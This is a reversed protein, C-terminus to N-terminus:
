GVVEDGVGFRITVVVGDGVCVASVSDPTERMYTPMTTAIIAVIVITTRNTSL